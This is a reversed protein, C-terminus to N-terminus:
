ARIRLLRALYGLGFGYVALALLAPVGKRAWLSASGQDAWAFPRVLVDNADDVAERPKGHVRERLKEQSPSPDAVSTARQGAIARTSASSAARSEDIAFLTFSVIVILSAVVSVLRLLGAM